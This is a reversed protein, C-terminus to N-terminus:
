YNAANVKVSSNLDPSWRAPCENKRRAATVPFQCTSVAPHAVVLTVSCMAGEMRAITMRRGIVTSEVHTHYSLQRTNLNTLDLVSVNISPFFMRLTPTTATQVPGAIFPLCSRLQRGLKVKKNAKMVIRTKTTKSGTKDEKTEERLNLPRSKRKRTLM